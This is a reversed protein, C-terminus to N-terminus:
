RDSAGVRMVWAQDRTDDDSLAISVTVSLCFVMFLAFAFGFIISLASFIEWFVRAVIRLYMLM